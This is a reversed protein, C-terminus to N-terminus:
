RHPERTEEREAEVQTLSTRTVHTVERDGRREVLYKRVKLSPPEKCAVGKGQVERAVQM